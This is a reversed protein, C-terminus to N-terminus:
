VTREAEQKLAENMAMFGERTAGDLSRKFVPVLIGSFIEGHHVVVGTASRQEIRIYHEGAFIGPILLEGKWRFERLPESVLVTPRLRMGRSGPPQILISLSEGRAPIGMISRIFPNWRAYAPFDMLVSWVREASARIEVQTELRHMSM